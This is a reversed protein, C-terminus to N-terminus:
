MAVRSVAGRAVSAVSDPYFDYMSELHSGLFSVAFLCSRVTGESLAVVDFNCLTHLLPFDDGMTCPKGLCAGLGSPLRKRRLWLRVVNYLELEVCDLEEDKWSRVFTKFQVPM